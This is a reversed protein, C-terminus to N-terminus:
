KQPATVLVSVPKHFETFSAKAIIVLLGSEGKDFSPFLCRESQSRTSVSAVQDTIGLPASTVSPGRSTPNVCACGLSPTKGALMGEPGQSTVTM